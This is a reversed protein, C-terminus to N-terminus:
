PLLLTYPTIGISGFKVKSLGALMLVEDYPKVKGVSVVLLVPMKPKNPGFRSATVTTGSGEDVAIKTAAMEKKKM